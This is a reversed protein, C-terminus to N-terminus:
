DLLTLSQIKESQKLVDFISLADNRLLGLDLKYQILKSESLVAIWASNDWDGLVLRHGSEQQHLAPRHTHGHIMLQADNLQMLRNIESIDVDMIDLMKSNNSQKSDERLQSALAIRQELPMNLVQQQWQDQRVMLRFKQYEIDDLCAEDGHSILINQTGHPLCFCDKILKAGIKDAWTQGLLFDRNGHYIHLKINADSLAILSSEIEDIWPQRYDDGIWAEYFDGVIHLHIDKDTTVTDQLLNSLSLFAQVLDPRKESLHLDSIFYHTM